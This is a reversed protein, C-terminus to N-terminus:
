MSINIIYFKHIYSFVWHGQRKLGTSTYLSHWQSKWFWQLAYQCWDSMFNMSYDQLIVTDIGLEHCNLKCQGLICVYLVFCDLLRWPIWFSLSLYLYQGLHRKLAQAAGCISALVDMEQKWWLKLLLAELVDLLLKWEQHQQKLSFFLWFFM